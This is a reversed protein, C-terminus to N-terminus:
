PRTARALGYGLAVAIKDATELSIGREGNIFRTMVIPALGADKAIRYPTLGSEAIATKLPELIGPQLKKVM